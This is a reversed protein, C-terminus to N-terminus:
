YRLWTHGAPPSGLLRGAADELRPLWVAQVCEACAAELSPRLKQTWKNQSSETLTAEDWGLSEPSIGLDIDESFRAIAGYVKSLSTGGKFVVTDGLEPMGFIRALLWVVWFDKEVIVADVETRENYRTFFDARQQKPLTAFHKM